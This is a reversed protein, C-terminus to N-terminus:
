GSSPRPEYEKAIAPLLPSSLPADAAMSKIISGIGPNPTPALLSDRWTVYDRGKKTIGLSGDVSHTVLAHQQLATIVAYREELSPILPTWLSHYLESTAGDPLRSLWDLVRQTHPVLYYILYRFEWMEARERDAEAMEVIRDLQEPSIGWNATVNSLDTSGNPDPESPMQDIGQMQPALVSGGPWKFETMRTIFHRVEAKFMTLFGMAVIAIVPAPSLFGRLYDLVLTAWEM